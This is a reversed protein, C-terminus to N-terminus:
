AVDGDGIQMRCRPCQEGYADAGTLVEGCHPCRRAETFIRPSATTRARLRLVILAPIFTLVLTIFFWMVGNKGIASMRMGVRLCSVVYLFALLGLLIWHIAHWDDFMGAM